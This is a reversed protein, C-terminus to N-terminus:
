GHYHLIYKSSVFRFGLKEYLRISPINAVQTGVIIRKYKPILKGVGAVLAMGIGKGFSRKDVAILDIIVSGDEQLLLQNFGVIKNGIEAIIMMEGRQGSFFNAVWQRKIENAISNNIKPDLHFRSYKFSEVAIEEVIRQDDAQAPRILVNDSGIYELEIAKFIMSVDVVRFGNEQLFLVDRVMKTDVKTYIFIGKKLFRKININGQNNDLSLSYTPKGIISSLWKDLKFETM